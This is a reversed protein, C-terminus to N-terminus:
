DEDGHPVQPLLAQSPPRLHAMPVGRGDAVSGAPGMSVGSPGQKSSQGVDLPREQMQCVHPVSAVQSERSGSM